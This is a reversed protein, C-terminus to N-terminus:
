NLANSDQLMDNMFYSCDVIIWKKKNQIVNWQLLTGCKVQATM